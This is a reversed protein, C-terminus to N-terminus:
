SRKLKGFFFADLYKNKSIIMGGLLLCFTVGGGILIAALDGILTPPSYKFRMALGSLIFFVYSQLIYIYVSYKGAMEVAARVPAALFAKCYFMMVVALGSVVVASVWRLVIPYINAVSLTMKSLYIYTNKDWLFYCLAAIIGLVPVIFKMKNKFASNLDVGALYFGAVFFPFTYKFLCINFMDPLLLVVVFFIVLAFPRFRGAATATATLMLSGMLAWLFWLNGLATYFVKGFIIPLGQWIFHALHEVLAWSFIPILYPFVRRLVYKIQSEAANIGRFSLYGAVAMFLPMHFMYILQFLPDDWFTGNQCIVYQIAHGICVLTILIGKLFDLFNNRRM